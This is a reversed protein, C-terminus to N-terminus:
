PLSHFWRLDRDVGRTYKTEPYCKIEEQRTQHNWRIGVHPMQTIQRMAANVSARSFGRSLATRYLTNTTLWDPQKELYKLIRNILM